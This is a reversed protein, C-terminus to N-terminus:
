AQELMACATEDAIVTVGPHVQLISVERQENFGIHGNNDLGLLQLDVGDLERITEEYAACVAQVDDKMGEPIFSVNLFIIQLQEACIQASGSQGYSLAHDTHALGHFNAFGIKM